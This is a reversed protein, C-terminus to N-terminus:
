QRKELRERIGRILLGLLPKNAEDARIVRPDDEFFGENWPWPPMIVLGRPRWKLWAEVYPPWDDVLLAGYVVGKDETIHVVAEPVHERCWEVKETWASTTKRPGKTLIHINFGNQKAMDMIEFGLQYRPLNRWWGVQSRILNHRARIYDPQKVGPGYEYPPENPGALQALDRQLASDYDVLTGDMDFLAILNPHPDPVRADPRLDTM